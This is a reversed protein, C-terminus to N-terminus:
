PSPREEWSLRPERKKQLNKGSGHRFLTAPQLSNFIRNCSTQDGHATRCPRRFVEPRAPPLPRGLILKRCFSDFLGNLVSEFGTYIRAHSNYGALDLPKEPGDRGRFFDRAAISRRATADKDMKLISMQLRSDGLWEFAQEYYALNLDFNCVSISNDMSLYAKLSAIGLPPSTPHMAPPFVLAIRLKESPNSVPEPM